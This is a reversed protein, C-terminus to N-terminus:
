LLQYDTSLTSKSNDYTNNSNISLLGKNKFKKNTNELVNQYTVFLKSYISNKPESTIQTTTNNSYRKKSEFCTDVFNINTAYIYFKNNFIKMQRAVFILSKYLHITNKLYAFHPNLYPFTTKMIFNYEEEFIYNTIFMQIIANKSNKVEQLM